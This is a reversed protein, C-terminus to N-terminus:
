KRNGNACEVACYGEIALMVAGEALLVAINARGLFKFVKLPVGKKLGGPLKKWLNQYSTTNGGRGTFLGGFKARLPRPVPNINRLQGTGLAPPLNQAGALGALLGGLNGSVDDICDGICALANFCTNAQDKTFPAYDNGGKNRENMAHRVWGPDIMLGFPDSYVLPSQNVYSYLNMSDVYGMPDEQAFRGTDPDLVRFRYDFLETGSILPRGTYIHFAGFISLGQETGIEDLIRVQGYDGYEYRELIDGFENTISTLSNLDDRHSWINKDTAANPRQYHVEDDIGLGFVHTSLVSDNNLLDLQEIVEWLSACGYVMQKEGDNFGDGNMDVHEVVRRALPDYRNTVVRNVDLQGSKMSIGILQNRFDYTYHEHELDVGQNATFENMFANIDGFDFSGDGNIDASPDQNEYAALFPNLDFTDFAYDNNFDAFNNQAKLVLNGNEDYLYVWETGDANLTSTYQNNENVAYSAVPTGNEDFGTVDVRNHVGDLTYNTIGNNIPATYDTLPDPYDVDTSILRNSSDYGFSRVRRNIMDSGVDQYSTRNQNADWTFDFADLETGSVSNTTSISAVRGFGLDSGGLYHGEYGNYAYDTQTGNGNTRRLLRGGIYDFQTILPNTMLPDSIGTLRNLIDYSRDITRGSPYVIQTMNNADDHAYQVVRDSLEPFSPADVNQLERIINSRSDYERVIVAFDNSAAIMRGLGDYLFSESTTGAVSAGSITRTDLRNNLDYLHTIAVGRADTYTDVNGNQDYTTTYDECDPMVIRTIRNLADYEYSTTNGNDDTESTLRSSDDYTKFTDITGIPAGSGVGTDTMAVSSQILRNMSDFLNETVNGRPDTQKVLNSRTDYSLLTELALGQPDQIIRKIRHLDDYHYDTTFREIAGSGDSAADTRTQTILNSDEDYIYLMGNGDSEITSELRSATDYFYEILNPTGTSTPVLMQKISDDENYVSETIQETVSGIGTSGDYNYGYVQVKEHTRRDRADYEYIMDMLKVSIATDSAVTDQEYPGLLSSGLLNHNNDYEYAVTNGMPDIIATTRDFGDYEVIYTQTRSVDDPNVRAETIRGKQDRDFEIEVLISQEDIGYFQRILQDRADYAYHAVTPDSGGASEGTVHKVLNKAGDYVWEEVALHDADSAPFVPISVTGNAPDTISATSSQMEGHEHAAKTRYDHIDYEYLTIFSPDDPNFLAGAPSQSDTTLNAVEQQVVNGNADYYFEVRSFLATMASNFQEKIILNSDQNYYLSTVDGGADIQQILNGVSDYLYETTLNLNGDGYDVIKRVMRGYSHSAQDTDYEFRDERQLSGTLTEKHAHIHKTIQGHLNYDFEEVSTANTPDALSIASGTFNPIDHYTKLLNGTARGTVANISEDYEKLTVNNDGDRYATVFSDSSCGCVSGGSGGGFEFDYLWDETISETTGGAGDSDYRTRSLMAGWRLPDESYRDFLYSSFDQDLSIAAPPTILGQSQEGIPNWHEDYEWTKVYRETGSPGSFAVPIANPNSSDLYYWTHIGSADITAWVIDSANNEVFGDYEVKELLARHFPGSARNGIDNGSYKFRTVAGRRDNVWVYYDYYLDNLALDISEAANAYLTPDTHSAVYSYTSNGYHQHAVRAINRGVANAGQDIVDGWYENELVIDGNPNTVKTMLRNEWQTVETYEFQWKRDGTQDFRAHQPNNMMPFEADDQIQPLTVSNLLPNFYATSIGDIYEYRWERRPTGVGGVGDILDAIIWITHEDWQESTSMQPSPNDDYDLQDHYVFDIQNGLTDIAYDIRPAGSTDTLEYEFQITNGNRDVISELRGAFQHFAGGATKYIPFFRYEVMNSDLIAITQDFGRYLVKKAIQEEDHRYQGITLGPENPDIVSDYSEFRDVRGAGSLLNIELPYVEFAMPEPSLAPDAVVYDIVPRPTSIRMNYSFDWHDGLPSPGNLNAFRNNIAHADNVEYANPTGDVTQLGSYSRYFRRIEFNLGRGPIMLDTQALQYDGTSLNIPDSSDKGGDGGSGGQTEGECSCDDCPKGTSDPVGGYGFTLSAYITALGISSVFTDRRNM